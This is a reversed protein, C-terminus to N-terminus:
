FTLSVPDGRKWIIHFEPTRPEYPREAILLPIPRYPKKAFDVRPDIPAKDIPARTRTFPVLCVPYEDFSETYAFENSNEFGAWLAMREQAQPILDTWYLPYYGPPAEPDKPIYRPKYKAPEKM